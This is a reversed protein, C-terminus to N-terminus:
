SGRSDGSWRQRTVCNGLGKQNGKVGSDQVIGLPSEGKRSCNGMEEKYHRNWARMLVCTRACM